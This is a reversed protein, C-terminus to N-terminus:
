AATDNHWGFELILDAVKHVQVSNMRTGSRPYIAGTVLILDQYDLKRQEYLYKLCAKVHDASDPSFVAEWYVSEVGACLNLARAMPENTSIALIPQSVARAALMRAAYGSYTIAVVKTIPLSRLILAIADEVAQSPTAAAQTTRITADNRRNAFTADCIRRMIQVAKFPHRGVATEGSLMTASAGDLVANGIDAVEAKTPFDNDIMSHLMETAVIVPKGHHRATEIIRKQYLVLTELSTEVSLDGRDIMIADAAEIIEAMHDLGGQNEIKALILPGRGNALARIANVHAVSEVFSIGVFDVGEETAFAVMHRDRDTVIPTSLKVHPVNIGKASRLVGATEARCIIDRGIIEEVTFRLTGDDALITEGAKLEAHLDGYNVLVKNRAPSAGDTTLIIQGGVEFQPERDLVATRIKRGPIDLLIPLMPVTERLLRITRSHWALDAHSGNLRAVSMGAHVLALVAERNDTAPGITAVIKTHPM